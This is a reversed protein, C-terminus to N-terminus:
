GAPPPSAPQVRNRTIERVLHYGLIGVMPVCEALFAAGLTPDRPYKPRLIAGASAACLLGMLLCTGTLWVLRTKSRLTRLALLCLLPFAAACLALVTWELTGEDGHALDHAAAWVFYFLVAMGVCVLPLAGNRGQNM